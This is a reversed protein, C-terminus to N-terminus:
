LRQPLDISTLGVHLYNKICLWVVTSKLRSIEHIFLITLPNKKKDTLPIGTKREEERDEVVIQNWTIEGEVRDFNILVDM